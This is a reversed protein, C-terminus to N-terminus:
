VIMGKLVGHESDILHQKSTPLFHEEAKAALKEMAGDVEDAFRQGNQKVTKMAKEMDGRGIAASKKFEKMVVKPNSIAHKTDEYASSAAAELKSGIKEAREPAVSIITEATNILAKTTKEAGQGIHSASTKVNAAVKKSQVKLAEKAKAINLSTSPHGNGAAESDEVSNSNKKSLAKSKVAEQVNLFTSHSDTGATENDEESNNLSTKSRFAKKFKKLTSFSNDENGSTEDSNLDRKSSTKSEEAKKVNLSSTSPNDTENEEESKSSSIKSKLAKKVKKLTSTSYDDTAATQNDENSTLDSKSSTKSKEEKKVNLSSTSPNNTSETENGECSKGSSAKSKFAKKVKKLTSTSYDDTGATENVEEDGKSTIKSKVAKKVNGLLSSTSVTEPRLAEAMALIPEGFIIQSGACGYFVM